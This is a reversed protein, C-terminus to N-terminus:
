RLIFTSDIAHKQVTQHTAILQFAQYGITELHYDITPINILQSSLQNEQGIMFPSTLQNDLFFQKFGAAVDDLNSIISDLPLSESVIKEACYYGDQYDFIDTLIYDSDIPEQYVSQYANVIQQSTPSISPHRSLLLAIHKKKKNKLLEFAQILAPEKNAYVSSILPNDTKECCVIPAFATYPAIESIPLGHSSFILGDYSKNRLNELYVQEKEESYNSPLIMIHYSSDFSAAMAGNLVRTFFPHKTHPLVFGITFTKGSNLNRAINNPVYNLEDIVRLVDLKAQKSVHKKDNLVRSVTAVSYGSLKAIDKITTM